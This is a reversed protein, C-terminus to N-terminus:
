PWLSLFKGHMLHGQVSYQLEAGQSVRVQFLSISSLSVGPDETVQGPSLTFCLTSGVAVFRASLGSDRCGKEVSHLRPAPGFHFPLVSVSAPTHTDRVQGWETVSGDREREREREALGKERERKSERERQGM